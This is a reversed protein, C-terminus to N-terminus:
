IPDPGANGKRPGQVEPVAPGGDRLSLLVFKTVREDEAVRNSCVVRWGRRVALEWNDTHNLHQRGTFPVLNSRVPNLTFPFLKGSGPLERSAALSGAGSQCQGSTIQHALKLSPLM